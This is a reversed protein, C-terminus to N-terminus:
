WSCRGADGGPCGTSTPVSRWMQARCWLPAWHWRKSMHTHHGPIPSSRPPGPKRGAEPGAESDLPRRGSGQTCLAIRRSPGPWFGSWSGARPCQSLPALSGGPCTFEWHQGAEGHPASPDAQPRRMRLLLISPCCIGRTNLAAPAPSECAKPSDLPLLSFPPCPSLLKALKFQLNRSPFRVKTGKSQQSPYIKTAGSKPLMRNDKIHQTSHLCLWPLWCTLFNLNGEWVGALQVM